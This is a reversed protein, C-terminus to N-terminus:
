PQIFTGVSRLYRNGGGAEQSLHAFEFRQQNGGGRPFKQPYELPVPKRGLQLSGNGYAQKGKFEQYPLSTSVPHIRM